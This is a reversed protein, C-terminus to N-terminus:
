LVNANLQSWSGGAQTHTDVKEGGAGCIQDSRSSIKVILSEGTWVDGRVKDTM